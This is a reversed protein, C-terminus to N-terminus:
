FAGFFVSTFTTIPSTERIDDVAARGESLLAKFEMYLEEDSMLKGLTGEGKAVSDSMKRINALTAALDQYATDDSSLLHGLTGEGKALRDSIDRFNAVVVQADNYLADENVLRGITGEGKAITDSIQRMNGAIQQIDGYIDDDRLLRGLTGEGNALGTAIKRIGSVSVKVDELIGGNLAARIENITATAADMLGATPTGRLLIDTSIPEATQSGESIVLYHGGLVSTPMVEIKYDARLEIPISLLALVHVGDKQLLIKDVKGVTVGRASVVDGVRLGMVDQFLIDMPQSRRFLSDRSLVVTLMFLAGIVAFCFLGVASEVFVQKKFKM